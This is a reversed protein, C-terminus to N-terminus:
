LCGVVAEKTKSVSRHSGELGIGAEIGGGDQHAPGVAGGGAAGVLHEAATLHHFEVGLEIGGSAEGQEDGV